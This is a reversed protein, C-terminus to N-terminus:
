DFMLFSRELISFICAFLYLWMANISYTLVLVDDVREFLMNFICIISDRFTRPDDSKGFNLSKGQIIAITNALHVTSKLQLYTTFNILLKILKIM